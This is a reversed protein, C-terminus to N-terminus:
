MFYRAWSSYTSKNLAKSESLAKNLDELKRKGEENLAVKEVDGPLPIRRAEGFRPLSTLIVVDGLTLRFWGMGRHFYTIRHEM